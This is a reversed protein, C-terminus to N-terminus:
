LAEQLLDFATDPSVLELEALLAVTDVVTRGPIATAGPGAPDPEAPAAEAALRAAEEAAAIRAAEEEAARRAAAEEEERKRQEERQRAIAQEAEIQRQRWTTIEE